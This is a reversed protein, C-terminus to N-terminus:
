YRALDAADRAGDNVAAVGQMVEAVRDNFARQDFEGHQALKLSM